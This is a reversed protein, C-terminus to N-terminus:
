RTTAAPEEAPKAQQDDTLSRWWYGLPGENAARRFYEIEEVHSLDKIKEYIRAQARRKFEICDFTETPDTM